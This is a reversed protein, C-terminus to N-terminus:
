DNLSELLNTTTSRKALFGHQEKSILENQKCYQLMEAVMIREMLKCFISTLSIPRYNCPDSSLGSKYVPTVIASKWAEPVSGTSMFSNFILSLPYALRGALNKLMTVPCECSRKHKLRQITKM